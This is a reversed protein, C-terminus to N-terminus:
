LQGFWSQGQTVMEFETVFTLWVGKWGTAISRHFHLESTNVIGSKILDSQM